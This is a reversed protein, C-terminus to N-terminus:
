IKSLIGVDEELYFRTWPKTKQVHLIASHKLVRPRKSGEATWIQIVSDGAKAKQRFTSKGAVRIWSVDSRRHQRQQEAAAMGREVSRAEGPFADDSLQKVSILWTRSGRDAFRSKRGTVLARRPSRKVIIKSIRDLFRADIPDGRRAM